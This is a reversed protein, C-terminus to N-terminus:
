YNAPPDSAPFSDEGWEEVLEDTDADPRKGPNGPDTEEAVTQDELEQEVIGPEENQKPDHSM